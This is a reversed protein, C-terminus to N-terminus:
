LWGFDRREVGISAHAICWGHEFCVPYLIVVEYCRLQLARHAAEATRALSTGSRDSLGAEVPYRRVIVGITSPTRPWAPPAAVQDTWVPQGGEGELLMLEPHGARRAVVATSRSAHVVTARMSPRAQTALPCTIAPDAEAAPGHCAPVDLPSLVAALDDDEPGSCHSVAAAPAEATSRRM